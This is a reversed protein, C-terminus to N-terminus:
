GMLNLSLDLARISNCVKPACRRHVQGPRVQGGSQISVGSSILGGGTLEGGNIILSQSLVTGGGLKLEGGSVVTVAGASSLLGGM